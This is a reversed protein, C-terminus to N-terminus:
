LSTLLEQSNGSGPTQKELRSEAEQQNHPSRAVESIRLTDDHLSHVKNCRAVINPLHSITLCKSFDLFPLAFALCKGDIAVPM